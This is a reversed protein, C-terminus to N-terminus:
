FPISRLYSVFVLITFGMIYALGYLMVPNAHKDLRLVKQEILETTKNEQLEKITKELERVDDKNIGEENFEYIMGMIMHAESSGIFEAFDMFVDLNNIKQKELKIVMKLVETKLPENLYPVTARLTQYVNGQTDLLSIFYRLFTPFMYQKIIDDKNKKKVLDLYPLKYGALAVFPLSLLLINSKLVAYMVVFLVVLILSIFIRKTTFRKRDLRFYEEYIPMDKEVFFGM